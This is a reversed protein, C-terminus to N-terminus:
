RNYRFDVQYSPIFLPTFSTSALSYATSDVQKELDTEYEQYYMASVLYTEDYLFVQAKDLFPRRVSVSRDKYGFPTATSGKTKLVVNDM